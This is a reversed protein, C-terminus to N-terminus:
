SWRLPVRVFILDGKPPRPSLYATVIWSEKGQYDIPVVVYLEKYRSHAGLYCNVRRDIGPGKPRNAPRIVFDPNSITLKVAEEEARLEPHGKLVHTWCPELVKVLIGRGDSVEFRIGPAM